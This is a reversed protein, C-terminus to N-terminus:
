EAVLMQLAGQQHLREIFAPEYAGNPDDRVVADVVVADDGVLIRWEGQKVADLIISAASAATTPAHNRFAAAAEMTEADADFGHAAVSNAVIDTGIHGPMVVSVGIHPANLRLDTILAESFGRVAFKAASYATHPRQTGISAWLGNVSATNIIHAEDAKLMMPLFSRCGNYVGGWCVNFTREWESPDDAVFSGAGGIGANNFLLHVADTQHADGVARAFRNMAEPDSVDAVHASAEGECADAVAAVGDHDVDCLAVRAGDASLQLALDRGM